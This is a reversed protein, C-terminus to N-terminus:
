PKLTVALSQCPKLTFVSIKALAKFHSCPKALAESNICQGKGSDGAAASLCLLAEYHVGGVDSHMCGVDSHVGGVDSYLGGVDSIPAKVAAGSCQGKGSDGAAASLRLLAESHVGGVDSHVCGVDFIPAKVAAGSCQGKGSDGAAASLCLLAESHVGGVDSIPAEPSSLDWLATSGDEYGSLLHWRHGPPGAHTLARTHSLTHTHTHSHTHTHTHTPICVHM